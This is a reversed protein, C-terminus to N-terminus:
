YQAGLERWADLSERAAQEDLKEIAFGAHVIIYDGVELDELLGVHAQYETGGVKAYATKNEIKTVQMPIALCM